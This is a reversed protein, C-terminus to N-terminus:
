VNNEEDGRVKKDPDSIMTLQGTNMERKEYNFHVWSINDRIVDQFLVM